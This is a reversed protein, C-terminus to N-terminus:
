GGKGQRPERGTQVGCVCLHQFIWPSPISLRMWVRQGKERLAQLSRHPQNTVGTLLLRHAQKLARLAYLTLYYYFFYYYCIFELPRYITCRRAYTGRFEDLIHSYHWLVM